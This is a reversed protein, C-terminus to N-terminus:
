PASSEGFRELSRSAQKRVQPRPDMLARKIASLAEPSKCFRLVKVAALRTAVSDHVVLRIASQEVSKPIVCFHGFYDLMEIASVSVNGDPDNVCECVVAIAARDSETSEVPRILYWLVSLAGFRVAPNEEQAAASMFRLVHEREKEETVVCHVDEMLKECIAFKHESNSSEFERLVEDIKSM